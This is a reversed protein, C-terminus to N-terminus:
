GASAARYQPVEVPWASRSVAVEVHGLLAQSGSSFLGSAQGLLSDGCRARDADSFFLSSGAGDFVSTRSLMTVCLDNADPISM